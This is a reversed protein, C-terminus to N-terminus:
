RILDMLPVVTSFREGSLLRALQQETLTGEMEMSATPSLTVNVSNTSLTYWSGTVADVIVPVVGGLVDLIVYGVSIKRALDYTQDSYGAKRFVVTHNQSKQLQLSVPTVGMRNGNIWVESENPSSTFIVSAPGSNFLAGCGALVLVVAPVVLLVRM